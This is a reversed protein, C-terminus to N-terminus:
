AGVYMLRDRGYSNPKKPFHLYYGLFTMRVEEYSLFETGKNTRKPFRLGEDAKGVSHPANWSKHFWVVHVLNGNTLRIPPNKFEWRVTPNCQGPYSGFQVPFDISSPLGILRHETPLRRDDAVGFVLFGGSSNAFAACAERLRKKGEEDKPNPLGSKYDFSEPELYRNDLLHKLSDLSWDNLSRPVVTGDGASSQEGPTTIVTYGSPVPVAWGPSCAM